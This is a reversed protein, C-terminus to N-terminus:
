LEKLAQDKESIAARTHHTTFVVAMASAFILLLMALPIRGVTILDLGILKALNPTTKKM